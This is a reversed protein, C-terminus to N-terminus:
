WGLVQSEAGKGEGREEQKKASQKKQNIKNCKQWRGQQKGFAQDREPKERSVRVAIGPNEERGGESTKKHQKSVRVTM